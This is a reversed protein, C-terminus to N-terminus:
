PMCANFLVTVAGGYSVVVDPRGDANLDTAAFVRSSAGAPYRKQTGFAGNGDNVLVTVETGYTSDDLVVLDMKQDGNMDAAAISAAGTALYYPVETGLIGNGQNLLVSAGLKGSVAVDLKGDGNLDAIAISTV